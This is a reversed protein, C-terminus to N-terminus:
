ELYLTNMVAIKKPDLQRKQFEKLLSNNLLENHKKAHSQERLFDRIGKLDEEQTSIKDRQQQIFKRFEDEDDSNLSQLREKSYITNRRTMM